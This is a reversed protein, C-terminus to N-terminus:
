ALALVDGTGDVAIELGIDDILDASTGVARQEVGLLHDGALLIGGVVVSTAVVGDALLQDVLDQVADAANGIAASTELTEQDEVRETATGTGTETSQEHLAQREVIALLALQLEADVRSGLGAGRNNLRVVRNEGGVGSQLM